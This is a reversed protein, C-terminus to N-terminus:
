GTLRTLVLAAFGLILFFGCMDVVTMLIPAAALAPDINLRRLFLPIVGGLTASLITNLALAAGVVLGLYPNGKVAFALLALLGGLVVGNVAAVQAEKTLVLLFDRPKILGLALERISVAVSQNGSCGSMNCIIPIMVALVVVQEIVDEFLFIVTAALVSLILNLGLWAMRRFTRSVMPMSRLEDGGVIGSLRMFTRETREGHAQEADARRVVGAIRGYRDTVPVGVFGYRDFLQEVEDLSTDTAVSIPNVIMISRLAAGGPKLVLDRMPVVGILVGKANEVYLYLVTYDAYEEANRRLDELVEAVTMTERYLLFDTVMIGGASDEEYTLLQRADKAEEPDMARLIAEVDEDDLEGLIDVRHDSEMEDVIAAARHAPLDEILDAGQVDSLEEILDAADEPELLTLLGARDDEDLRSIARAIDASSLTSLYDELRKADGAEVLTELREWSEQRMEESM